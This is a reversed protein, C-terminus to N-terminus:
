TPDIYGLTQYHLDPQEECTLIRRAFSPRTGPSRQVEPTEGSHRQGNERGRGKVREPIEPIEYHVIPDDLNKLGRLLDARTKEFMLRTGCQAHHQLPDVPYIPGLAPGRWDKFPDLPTYDTVPTIGLLRQIAPSFEEGKLPVPAVAPPDPEPDDDDHVAPWPVAVFTKPGSAIPTLPQFAKECQAIADVLKDLIVEQGVMTGVAALSEILPKSAKEFRLWDAALKENASPEHKLSRKYERALKLAQAKTMKPNRELIAARDPHKVLAQLTSFTLRQSKIFDPDYARWISVYSKLSSFNIGADKALKNLTKAGYATKVTAGIEGLRLFNGDTKKALAVCEAVAAEFEIVITM